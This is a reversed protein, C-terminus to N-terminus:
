EQAVVAQKTKKGGERALVLIVNGVIIAVAGGWFWTAPIEDRLLFGVIASYLPQAQSLIVVQSVPLYSLALMYNNRAMIPGLLASVVLWGWIALPLEPWGPVRIWWLATLAACMMLGRIMVLRQVPWYTVAIKGTFEALGFGLAGLLMWFFASPEGSLVTWRVVIIGVVTLAFGVWHSRTFREHLLWMGLIIAVVVEIRNMLSGVAADARALGEWLGIIGIVSSGTHALLWIIAKTELPHTGRASDEAHLPKVIGLHTLLWWVTNVPVVVWYMLAIFRQPELVDTVEKGMAMMSGACLAYLQAFM